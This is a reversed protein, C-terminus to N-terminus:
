NKNDGCREMEEFLILMQDNLAMQEDAFVNREGESMAAIAGTNGGLTMKKYGTGDFTACEKEMHLLEADMWDGNPTKYHSYVLKKGRGAEDKIFGVM